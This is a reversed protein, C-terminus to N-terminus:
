RRMRPDHTPDAYPSPCGRAAAGPRLEYHWPENAYVQCLGYAPGHAALWAAAGPPGIDIADGSVHASTEPTAVWRAAEAASGYTSVAERRLMRQYAPSRWGSDVHFVVGDDAAGTAARRVAALLEQDLNAVGPVDDDFVTTGSPVAGDAQGLGGHRGAGLATATATRLATVAAEPSPSAGLVPGALKVALVLVVLLACAVRIRRVSTRHVTGRPSASVPM